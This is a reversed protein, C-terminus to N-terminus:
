NATGPGPPPNLRLFATVAGRARRKIESPDPTDAVRLLLSIMLDGWLLSAFQSSLEAPEGAVLRLSIAQSMIQRLATRSTGRGIAHLSRAIEPTNEAEAIAIRFVAVVAPDTVERLLQAGFGTLVQALTERDTPTPADTALRMRGARESICAVLMKQKDGVLAYLERKSVKARTAIELTSTQAFGNARFASFAAELIRDRAEPPTIKPLQKSAARRQV